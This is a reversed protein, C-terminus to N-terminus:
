ARGQIEGGIWKPNADYWTGPIGPYDRLDERVIPLSDWPDIQEFSQTSLRSRWCEQLPDVMMAVTFSFTSNGIALVNCQMLFYWDPFWDMSVPTPSNLDPLLYNYVGYPEASLPLLDASTIPSYESFAAVDTPDESAVFLVPRDFRPWHEALWDLYWQNPTLYFIFRGTDGRRMHLGIITKGLQRLRSFAGDLRQRKEPALQFLGRIFERDPRYYRTHPQAYGLYDHGRVEDGDPPLTESLAAEPYKYPIRREHYTPLTDALLPDNHGFLQQGIWRPCQYALGYRKAYTRLFAYQFVQNGFRGQRGLCSM